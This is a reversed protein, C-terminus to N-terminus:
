LQVIVIILFRIIVLRNNYDFTIIILCNHYNFVDNYHFSYWPSFRDSSLLVAPYFLKGLFPRNVRKIIIYIHNILIQIDTVAWIITRPTEPSITLSAELMGFSVLCLVTFTESKLVNKKQICMNIINYVSYLTYLAEIVIQKILEIWSSQFFFVQYFINFPILILNFIIDSLFKIGLLVRM